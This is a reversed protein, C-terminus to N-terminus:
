RVVCLVYLLFVDMGGTPNTGVIATSRRRLGRPWQSRCNQWWYWIYDLDMSNSQLRFVSVLLRVPMGDEDHMRKM